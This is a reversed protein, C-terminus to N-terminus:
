LTKQLNARNEWRTWKLSMANTLQSCVSLLITYVIYKQNYFSCTGGQVNQEGRWRPTAGWFSSPLNVQLEVNNRSFGCVLATLFRSCAQIAECAEAALQLLPEDHFIEHQFRHECFEMLVTSLDGKHWTGCPFLSTKDWGIMEKSIKSVYGRRSHQHCWNRFKVSLAAFRKDITGEPEQESFLALVSGLYQKCIGLYMTHFWDFCWLAEAKGPEQLLHYAFPNPNCIRIGYVWYCALRAQPDGVARVWHRISSGPVPSM